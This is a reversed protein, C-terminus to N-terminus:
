PECSAPADSEVRMRGTVSLSMQRAHEGAGRDDCLVFTGSQFSGNPLVPSGTSSYAIYNAVSSSGNLTNDGRLASYVRIIPEDAEPDVSTDVQQDDDKNHFVIWGQSWGGSGACSAGDSSSCIAVRTQPADLQPVRKLAESRALALTAVFENAQTTIRKNKTFTTFSPTALALLIAGVGLSIMLEVLTFGKNAFPKKM